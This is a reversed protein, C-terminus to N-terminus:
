TTCFEIKKMKQRSSTCQTDRLPTTPHVICQMNRSLVAHCVILPPNYMVSQTVHCLPTNLYLTLPTDFLTSLIVNSPIENFFFMLSYKNLSKVVQPLSELEQLNISYFLTLRGRPQRPRDLLKFMM